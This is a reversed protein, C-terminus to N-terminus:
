DNNKMCESYGDIFGHRFPMPKGACLYQAHLGLDDVSSFTIDGHDNRLKEAWGILYGRKFETVSNTCAEVANPGLKSISHSIAADLDEPVISAGKNIISIATLIDTSDPSFMLDM